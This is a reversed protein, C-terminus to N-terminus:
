AFAYVVRGCPFFVIFAVAGRGFPFGEAPECSADSFITLVGPTRGVPFLVVDPLASELLGRLATLAARLVDDVEDLGDM